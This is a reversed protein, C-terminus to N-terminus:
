ISEISNLVRCVMAFGVVDGAQALRDGALELAYFLRRVQNTENEVHTIITTPPNITQIHM